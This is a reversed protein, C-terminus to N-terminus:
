YDRVKVVLKLSRSWAHYELADKEGRGVSRDAAFTYAAIELLDLLRDPLHVVNRVFDPLKVKVKADVGDYDLTIVGPKQGASKAKLKAGNCLVTTIHSPGSM